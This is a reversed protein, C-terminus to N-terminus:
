PIGFHRSRSVLCFRPNNSNCSARTPLKTPPTLPDPVRGPPSPSPHGRWSSEVDSGTLRSNSTSTLHSNPVPLSRSLSGLGSFSLFGLLLICLITHAMRQMETCATDIGLGTCCSTLDVVGLARLAAIHRSLATPALTVELRWTVGGASTRAQTHTHTHTTIKRANWSDPSGPGTQSEHVAVPTTAAHSLGLRTLRRLGEVSTSRDTWEHGKPFGLRLRDLRAGAQGLRGWRKRRPAAEWWDWVWDWDWDWAHMCSCPTIAGLAMQAGFCRFLFFCFLQGNKYESDGSIISSSGQGPGPGPGTCGTKGSERRRGPFFRSSFM